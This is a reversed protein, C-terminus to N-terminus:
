GRAPRNRKPAASAERHRTPTGLRAAIGGLTDLRTEADGSVIEVGAGRGLAARVAQEAAHSHEHVFHSSVFLQRVRNAELMRMTADEGLASGDHARASSLEALARLDSATRLRSAAARAERALDAEPSDVSVGLAAGTRPRLAKPIAATARTAGEMRGGIVIWSEADAHQVVSRVLQAALEDLSASVRIRDLPHLEGLQYRFVLATHHNIVALIVPREEKLARMYPAIAIGRGWVVTPAVEFALSQLRATGDPTVFAAVGPAHLARHEGDLAADLAERARAFARREGDAAIGGGCRRLEVGLALRWSHGHSMPLPTFYASLVREREYLTQLAVLEHLTLM